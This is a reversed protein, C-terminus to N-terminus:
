LKEYERPTDVGSPGEDVECFLADEIRWV